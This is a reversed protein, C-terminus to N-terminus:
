LSTLTCKIYAQIMLYTGNLIALIRMQTNVYKNHTYFFIVIEVMTVDAVESSTSTRAEDFSLIHYRLM